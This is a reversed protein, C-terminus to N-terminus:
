TEQRIQMRIGNLRTAKGRASVICCVAFVEFVKLKRLWKFAYVRFIVKFIASKTGLVLRKEFFGEGRCRIPRIIYILCMHLV